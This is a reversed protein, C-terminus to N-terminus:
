TVRNQPQGIWPLQEVLAILQAIQILHEGWHASLRAEDEDASEFLESARLAHDIADTDAPDAAAVALAQNARAEHLDALEQALMLQKALRVSEHHADILTLIIAHAERLAKREASTGAAVHRM